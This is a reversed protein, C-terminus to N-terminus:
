RVLVSLRHVANNGFGCVDFTSDVPQVAGSSDYARCMLEHDGPAADWDYTWGRWAYQGLEPDLKAEVWTGDVAVEVKEIALGAGSWARGQLTVPGRDLLRSRTYVDPIGPPVMLSKVRM